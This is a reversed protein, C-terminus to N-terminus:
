YADLTLSTSQISTTGLPWRDHLTNLVLFIQLVIYILLAAGNFIFMLIYLVLTNGPGM